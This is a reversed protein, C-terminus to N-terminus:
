LFISSTLVTIEVFKFGQGSSCVCLIRLTPHCETSFLMYNMVWLTLYPLQTMGNSELIPIVFTKSHM